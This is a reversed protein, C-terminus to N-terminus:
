ELACTVSVLHETAKAEQIAEKLEDNHPEDPRHTQPYLIAPAQRTFGSRPPPSDSEERPSTEREAMAQAKRSAKIPLSSDFPPPAQYDRPAPKKSQPWDKIYYQSQDPNVLRKFIICDPVFYENVM